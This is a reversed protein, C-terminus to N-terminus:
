TLEIRIRKGLAVAAKELTALTISTNAPDLLRDLAPRGTKMRAALETKTLNRRKMEKAIQFAIVRKAAKAETSQLLNEERLFDDFDSGLHKKNM